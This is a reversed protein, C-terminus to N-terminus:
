EPGVCLKKVPLPIFCVSAAPRPVDNTSSEASPLSVGLAARLRALPTRVGIQYANKKDRWDVAGSSGDGGSPGLFDAILCRYM